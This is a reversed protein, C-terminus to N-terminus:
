EVVAVEAVPCNVIALLAGFADTLRLAVLTATSVTFETFHLLLEIVPDNASEHVTVREPVAGVPPTFTFRALLLLATVTGALTDTGPPADVAANM